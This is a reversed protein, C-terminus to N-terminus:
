CNINKDNAIPPKAGVGMGAWQYFCTHTDSLAASFLLSPGVLTLHVCECSMLRLICVSVMEM